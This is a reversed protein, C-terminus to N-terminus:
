VCILLVTVLEPIWPAFLHLATWGHIDQANITVMSGLKLLLMVTDVKNARAAYMLPTRKLQSTRLAFDAGKRHLWTIMDHGGHNGAMHIIGEGDADKDQKLFNVDGGKYALLKLVLDLKGAAKKKRFYRMIKKGIGGTDFLNEDSEAAENMLTM